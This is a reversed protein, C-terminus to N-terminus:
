PLTRETRYSCIDIAATRNNQNHTNAIIFFAVMIKSRVAVPLAEALRLPLWIFRGSSTALLLALLLRRLQLPQASDTPCKTFITKAFTQM